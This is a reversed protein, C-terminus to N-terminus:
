QLTLGGHTGLYVEAHITTLTLLNSPEAAEKVLWCEDGAETGVEDEGKWPHSAESSHSPLWRGDRRVTGGLLACTCSEQGPELRM